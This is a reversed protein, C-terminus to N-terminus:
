NLVVGHLRIPSHFYLDVMRLRPMLHLHTILRKIGLSLGGPVWQIPPHTPGLAPKPRQPTYSHRKSRCPIPDWGEARIVLLTDRSWQGM